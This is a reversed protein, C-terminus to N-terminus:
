LAGPHWVATLGDLTLTELLLTKGFLGLADKLWGESDEGWTVDITPLDADIDREVALWDRAEAEGGIADVLGNEVAQRGSYVRGDALRRVTAEDMARGTAVMAVFLGHMEDVLAQISARVPGSLPELPSPQGKLPGSRLAETGIGIQGLLESADFTEWLVGISGTLTGRRALIRDSAAAVMYGGSAAVDAMVAIVPKRGKVVLLADHLAEGGVFTGGPSDISVILAKVSDDEALERVVTDRASDSLILGALHLRAVRDRDGDWERGRAGIAAVALLLALIAGARWWAARRRLRRREVLLDPDSVM